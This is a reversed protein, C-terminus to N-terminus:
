ELLKLATLAYIEACELLRKVEVYENPGHSVSLIGPGFALAPMGRQSYFRTELLGPCLEFSPRNEIVEEISDSLARGLASDTDTASSEGEQIVEM